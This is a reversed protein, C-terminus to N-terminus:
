KSLPEQLITWEHGATYCFLGVFLNHVFNNIVDQNCM